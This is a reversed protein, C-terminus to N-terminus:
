PARRTQSAQGLTTNTAIVGDVALDAALTAISSLEDASLDPSVKVLVPIRRERAAFADRETLVAALSSQLAVAEQLRRLGPTNPSSVNVAVYDAVHAVARFCTVYDDVAYELPTDANMGINIGCVGAFRRKALRGAVAAAGDNPFGM